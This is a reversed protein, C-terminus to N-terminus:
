MGGTKHYLLYEASTLQDIPKGNFTESMQDEITSEGKARNRKTLVDMRKKNLWQAHQLMIIQPM